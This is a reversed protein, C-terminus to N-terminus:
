DVHTGVSAFLRSRRTKVVVGTGMMNAMCCDSVFDVLHARFIM